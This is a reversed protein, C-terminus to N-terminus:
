AVRGGQQEDAQLDPHDAGVWKQWCGQARDLRTNLAEFQMPSFRSKKSMEDHLHPVVAIDFMDLGDHSHAPSYPTGEGIRAPLLYDFGPIQELYIRMSDDNYSSDAAHWRGGLRVAGFYHRVTPRMMPLWADPMLKGLVCMEMPVEAFGAELGCARMLAVQLNAKTTCMGSGRALTDSAREQWNGFRYPMAQVFAFVAQATAEETTRLLRAARRRIAPHDVDCLTEPDPLDRPPTAEAVAREAANLAGDLVTRLYAREPKLWDAGATDLVWVTSQAGKVKLPQMVSHFHCGPSQWGHDHTLVGQLLVCLNDPSQVPLEQGETLTHIIGQAFVAQAASGLYLGLLSDFFYGESVTANRTFDLKHLM